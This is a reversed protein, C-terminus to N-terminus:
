GEVEVVRGLLLRSSLRLTQHLKDISLKRWRLSNTVGPLSCVDKKRLNRNCNATQTKFNWSSSSATSTGTRSILLHFLAIVAGEFEPGKGELVPWKWSASCLHGLVTTCSSVSGREAHKHEALKDISGDLLFVGLFVYKLSRWQMISFCLLRLLDVHLM